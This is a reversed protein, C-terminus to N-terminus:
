FLIAGIGGFEKLKEAAEKQVFEVEVDNIAADIILEDFEEADIPYPLVLQQAIGKKLADKVGQKELLASGGPSSNLLLYDIIKMDHVREHECAIESVKNAILSQSAKFNIDVVDVLTQAVMPHLVKKVAQAIKTNGALVLREFEPDGMFYANIEDAIEKVHRRDFESSRRENALTKSKRGFKRNQDHKTEKLMQDTSISLFVEVLKVEAGSFLVTLYKKYQDISFLLHKLQPLGYYIRTELKIPLDLRFRREQSYFIVVSRGTPKSKLLESELFTIFKDYEKQFTKRKLDESFLDEYRKAEKKLEILWAPRDRLNAPNSSDIDVYVTIVPNNKYQYTSVFEKFKELIYNIKAKM